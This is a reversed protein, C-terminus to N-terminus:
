VNSEPINYIDENILFTDVNCIDKNILFPRCEENPHIGKNGTYVHGRSSKYWNKTHSATSSTTHVPEHPPKSFGEFTLQRHCHSIVSIIVLCLFWKCMSSCHLSINKQLKM